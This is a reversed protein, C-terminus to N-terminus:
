KAFREDVKAFREDMRAELELFRNDVALFRNNMDEQMSAFREDMKAELDAFKDLIEKYGIAGAVSYRFEKDEELMDLLKKKLENSQM